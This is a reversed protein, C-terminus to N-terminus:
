LAAVQGVSLFLLNEVVVGDFKAALGSAGGPALHATRPAPRSVQFIGSIFVKPKITVEVRRAENPTGTGTTQQPKDIVIRDRAIGAAELSARVNQSRNLALQRNYESDAGAPDHFGVLHAKAGAHGKLYAVVKAFTNNVDGSVNFKDFAFYVRADPIPEAVAPAPTPAPAPAAVPEPAPAVPAVPAAVPASAGVSCQRWSSPGISFLLPLLFLLAGLILGVTTDLKNYSSYSDATMGYNTEM